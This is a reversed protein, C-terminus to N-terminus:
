KKKEKLHFAGKYTPDSKQRYFDLKRAVEQLEGPEPKLSSADIDLKPELARQRIDRPYKEWLVKEFADLLLVVKGKKDMRGTRGSRHIFDQVSLPLNFHIVQGVNPDDFGRSMLDTTILVNTKNSYFNHLAATRANQDKNSHVLDAPIGLRKLDEKLRDAQKKTNVFVITKTDEERIEKAALAKKLQYYGAHYFHIAINLPTSSEISKKSQIVTPWELFEDVIRQSRDNFTASALINQRKKPLVELFSYFQRTFNPDFLREFEDIILHRIKKFNVNSGLYFDFLGKPTAVILDYDQKELERIVGTRNGGGMVLVPKITTEEQFQQAVGFIQMALERTPTLILARAGGPQNYRLAVLTPLLYALTKGSGTPSVLIVDQGNLLPKFSRDQIEVPIEIGLRELVSLFERSLGLNAFNESSENEKM